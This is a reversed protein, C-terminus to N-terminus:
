GIELLYKMEVKKRFNAILKRAGLEPNFSDNIVDAKLKNNVKPFKGFRNKYKIRFEKWKIDYIAGLNEKNLDNFYIVEDIRNIFEIPFHQKLKAELFNKRDEQVNDENLQKVGKYGINSRNYLAKVGVNSAMLITVESFSAQFGKADTLIGEDLVTLLLDYLSSHAKEIEDIFLTFTKNHKAYEILQGGEDYGIFGASTGILKTIDSPHKYESGNITFIKNHTIKEAFRKSMETKGIGSNGLFLFAGNNVNGGFGMEIIKHNNILEDVAYQQGVINDNLYTKIITYDIDKDIKVNFKNEFFNITDNVTINKINKLEKKYIVNNKEKEAILEEALQFQANNAAELRRRKNNNMRKQILSQSEDNLKNRKVQIAIDDIYNFSKDPNNLHTDFRASLEVIKEIADNSFKVKHYKEYIQKSGQIIKITNHVSPEELNVISVRREFAKDKALTKKYEDITTGFVCKIQGKALYPKFVNLLNLGMSGQGATQMTHCEDIFLIVNQNEILENKLEQINKEFDGRWKTGSVIDNMELERVDYDNTTDNLLAYALGEVLNSKGIGADGLILSNPKKYRGLNDILLQIMDDRGICPNQKLSKVKATLSTTYKDLTENKSKVTQTKEEIIADNYDEENYDDENPFLFYGTSSVTYSNYESYMSIFDQLTVDPSNATLLTYVFSGKFTLMSKIIALYTIKSNTECHKEQAEIFLNILEASLEVNETKVKSNSSLHELKSNLTKIAIDINLGLNEFITKVFETEKLVLMERLLHEPFIHTNKFFLAAQTSHLLLFEVNENIDINRNILTKKFEIM